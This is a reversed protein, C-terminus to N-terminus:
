DMSLLYNAKNIASVIDEITNNIGSDVSDLYLRIEQSKLIALFKIINKSFNELLIDKDEKYLEIDELDISDPSFSPFVAGSSKCTGIIEEQLKDFLSDLTEYLDGLIEHANFNTMYWHTMHIHSLTKSLILGFFKTADLDTPEKITIISIDM